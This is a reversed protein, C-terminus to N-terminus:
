RQRSRPCRVSPEQMLSKAAAKPTAKQDREQAIEIQSASTPQRHNTESAFSNMGYATKNPELVHVQNFKM